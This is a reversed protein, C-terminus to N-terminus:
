TGFSYPTSFSSLIHFCEGFLQPIYACNGDTLYNEITPQGIQHLWVLHAFRKDHLCFALLSALALRKEAEKLIPMGGFSFPHLSNTKVVVSLKNVYPLAIKEYYRM